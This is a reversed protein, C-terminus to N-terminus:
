VLHDPINAVVIGVFIGGEDLPIEGLLGTKNTDHEEGGMNYGRDGLETRYGNEEDGLLPSVCTQYIVVGETTNVGCSDGLVGRVGDM